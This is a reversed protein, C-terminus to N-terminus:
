HHGNHRHRLLGAAVVAGAGAVLVPGPHRAGTQVVATAAGRVPQPVHDQVVQGAHAAKGQVTRGADSAKGKLETGRARARSRVDAKAALEEVTDGLQGRTEEIQRRLEDPGKAGGASKETAGSVPRATAGGGRRATAGGGPRDMAGGTGASDNRDNM